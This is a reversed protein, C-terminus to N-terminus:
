DYSFLIAIEKARGPSRATFLRIGRKALSRHRAIERIFKIDTM